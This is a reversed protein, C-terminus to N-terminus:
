SAGLISKTELFEAFAYPGCERGNGSTKYGGFPALLDTKAYNLVVQGVRLQSAVKMVTEANKGSLYAALGYDTDNAIEIAEDISEYSQIALVPGFIEQGAITMKRSVDAFVTPKVYYGRTFGEPRGLGGAVLTAGEELGSQIFYQVKKWQALSVVPGLHASSKPDGVTTAEAAAKALNVVHDIWERPALMRSPANCSQGSNIMAARVGAVVATRLDADALIINSCKGGLEQCVRKVSPGAALAVDIGTRTSGTVSVMDIDPHASIAGGVTRGDGYVLNFVGEPVGAAALAEAFIRASFPALESPKLVIACGTALAPAVKSAIQNLPWNWPTIFGSVGIPEKVILTSGRREQFAYTELAEIAAKFHAAALPAQAGQALWLPAGIEDVIAEALDSQRRKLEAVISTLLEIREARGWRSYSQFAARAAKVARDVDAASGLSIRGSVTETAPNITEYVEQRAPAVWAGDIFFDRSERM